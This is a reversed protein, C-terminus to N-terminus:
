SGSGKFSRTTPPPLLMCIDYMRKDEAGYRAHSLDDVVDSRDVAGVSIVVAPCDLYNWLGIYTISNWKDLPLATHPAPPM